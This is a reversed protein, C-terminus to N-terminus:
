TGVASACGRGVLRTVLELGHVSGPSTMPLLLTVMGLALGGDDAQANDGVVLTEEPRTGLTSLAARFIEPDPKTAGVEFSMTLREALAAFGHGRLISRLDFGVNSIVGTVIGQAHLTAVVAPVDAYPVWSEPQLLGAYFAEPLGPPGAVQSMLGIYARRHDDPSLDRRAYLPALAEPVQDPYPGGAIGARAYDRALREAVAPEPALGLRRLAGPMMVEPPAPMFLTGAFDFLVARFRDGVLWARGDGM